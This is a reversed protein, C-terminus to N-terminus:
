QNIIKDLVPYLAEHVVAGFSQSIYGKLALANEKDLELKGSKYLERALELEGLDKTNNFIHNALGKYDFDLKEKKGDITTIEIQKFELKM